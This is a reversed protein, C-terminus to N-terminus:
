TSLNPHHETAADETSIKEKFFGYNSNQNTANREQKTEILELVDNFLCPRPEIDKECHCCSLLSKLLNQLYLCYNM